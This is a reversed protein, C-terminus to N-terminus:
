RPRADPTERSAAELEQVYRRREKRSSLRAGILRRVLGGDTARCDAFVVTLPIGNAVALAIVRRERYARRADVYAIYWSDCILTAFAFDFAREQLNEESKSPDWECRM